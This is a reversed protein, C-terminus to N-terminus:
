TVEIEDPLEIEGSFLLPMLNNKLAVLSKVEKNKEFQKEFIPNIISDFHEIQKIPPLVFKNKYVQNRNLGPVASDGTLNKLNQNLLMLYLYSWSFDNSKRTIYFTTDIPFFDEQEFKVTGATGKRGVIIGPGSVLPQNHYDVIGNSGYVPSNGNIRNEKKLPKGYSLELLDGIEKVEWGVPIKGLDSEIMEGGNSQYPENNEDLFEFNIFWREYLTQLLQELNNSIKKNLDIKKLINLHFDGIREQYELDSIIPLKLKKFDGKKFHPIMTGVQMSEIRRRILESRLVAFIYKYNYDKKIRLSVMDQAFCFNVKDPVLATGGPTGKNVFIIDNPLPHGRFWNDYTEQDVYRIREFTPYLDDTICNTAILPLYAEKEEVTPCTKGRNDIYLEVIDDLVVEKFEM